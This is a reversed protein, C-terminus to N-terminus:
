WWYGFTFADRNWELMMREVVLWLLLHDFHHGSCNFVIHIGQEKHEEGKGSLFNHALALM